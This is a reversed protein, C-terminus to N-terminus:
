PKVFVMNSYVGAWIGFSGRSEVVTAYKLVDPAENWVILTVTPELDELRKYSNRDMMDIGLTLTITVSRDGQETPVVVPVKLTSFGVNYEAKLKTTTVTKDKKTVSSTEYLTSTLDHKFLGSAGSRFQELLKKLFSLNEVARFALMPPNLDITLPEKDLCNLNVSAKNPRVLAAAPGYDNLKGYVGASYLKDLRAVVIANRGDSISTEHKRLAELVSDPTALHVFSMAGDSIKKGLHDDEKGHDGMYYEGANISSVETNFYLRRQSVFPHRETENKWYGDAESIKFEQRDSRNTSHQVGITALEDATENGLNGNHGKVWKVEVTVGRAKIEELEALLAKWENQNQVPEGTAKVWNRKLWFPSWDYIGQIVYKSDSYILLDTIVYEKAKRIAATAGLVEAVNNTGSNLSSGYGDFYQLPTVETVKDKDAKVVYGRDTLVHTPIGAGKKPPSKKFLYGHVGWGVNGPNPNAGGDSYMVIAQGVEQTLESTM